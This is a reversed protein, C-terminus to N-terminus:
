LRRAAPEDLLWLVEGHSTVRGAPHDAGQSIDRLAEAKNKGAVLFLVLDATAILDYTATLRWRDLQPVYNAVFREGTANLAETDPFLSATHGDAGMGLMIISQPADPVGGERLLKTFAMASQTPTDLSTDPALFRVGTDAVLTERVMRQNADGHAAHVWRADTIWTTVSRWDIQRDALERHVLRPTSGGALGLSLREAKSIENEVHSAAAAALSDMDEFVEINMGKTM